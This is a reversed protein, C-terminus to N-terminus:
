ARARDAAKVPITQTQEGEPAAPIAIRLVGDEFRAEINSRDAGPPLAFGREFRGFRRESFRYLGQGNEREEAKEGSVYLMDGRMTLEIDQAKMGPLDVCLEYGRDTERLDALPHGTFPSLMALPMGGPLGMPSLGGQGRWMQDFWRNFEGTLQSMPTMSSRWFEAAQSTARKAMDQSHRAMEQGAKLSSQAARGIAAASQRSADTAASFSRQEADIGAQASDSVADAGKKAAQAGAEATRRTAGAAGTATKDGAEIIQTQDTDAM